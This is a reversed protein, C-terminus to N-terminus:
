GRGITRPSVGAGATTSSEVIKQFQLRYVIFISSLQFELGCVMIKKFDYNMFWLSRLITIWLGYNKQKEIRFIMFWLSYKSTMVMFKGNTFNEYVM